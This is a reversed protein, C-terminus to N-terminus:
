STFRFLPVQDPHKTIQVRFIGLAPVSDESIVEVVKAILDRLPPHPPQALDSTELRHNRLALASVSASPCGHTIIEHLALESSFPEILFPQDVDCLM